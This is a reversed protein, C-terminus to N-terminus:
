NVQEQLISKLSILCSTLQYPISPLQFVPTFEADALGSARYFLAVEGTVLGSVLTKTIAIGYLSKQARFHSVIM